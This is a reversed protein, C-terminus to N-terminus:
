ALMLPWHGTALQWILGVSGRGDPLPPYKESAVSLLGGAVSYLQMGLSDM